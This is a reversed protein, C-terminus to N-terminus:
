DCQNWTQDTYFLVAYWHSELRRVLRVECPIGNFKGAQHNKAAASLTDTPDFVLYVTNNAVGAFGTADWEIYKLDGNASAGQALVERKYEHSWVLWRATEHLEFPHARNYFYSPVPIVWLLAVAALIPLVQRRGHGFASNALLVILIVSFFLLTPALFFLSSFFFTDPNSIAIPVFIVFAFIATYLPLRWSRRAAKTTIENGDMAVFYLEENTAEVSYRNRLSAL